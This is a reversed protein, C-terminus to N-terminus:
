AARGLLDLGDVDDASPWSSYITVRAPLRSPETTAGSQYDAWEVLHTFRRAAHRLIRDIDTVHRM